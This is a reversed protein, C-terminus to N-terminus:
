KYFAKSNGAAWARRRDKRKQRQNGGIRGPSIGGRSGRLLGLYALEALEARAAAIM